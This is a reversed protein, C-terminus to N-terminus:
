HRTLLARAADEGADADLSRIGARHCVDLAASVSAGVGRADLAALLDDATAEPLEALVDLARRIIEGAEGPIAEGSLKDARELAAQPARIVALALMAARLPLGGARPKHALNINGPSISHQTNSNSRLPKVSRMPLAKVRDRYEARYQERVKENPITDVARDLADALAARDDPVSLVKGTSEMRWLADVLREAGGIADAYAQAGRLRVVDDPDMGPPMSAFRMLRGPLLLPLAVDIAKRAARRGAADGDFAFIPCDSMRWLSQLHAPTLATGMTAVSAPFGARVSSITATYGEVVILPKENWAPDRARHANYLLRGKDFIPTENTNLYKAPAKGTLDRGGFGVVRGKADAIPFIVRNRFRDHQEGDERQVILGAEVALGLADTPLHRYLFRSDDPAFGIEFEAISDQGIGRGSLYERGGPRAVLAQAFIERAAENAEILTLKHAERRTSEADLSPVPLGADAALKAVADPFSLGEREMVFTFVDGNKGASHDFWAAKQDNVYFSPTKEANFPSLGKWERGAKKLRVYRGIVASAPLRSRIEDLFEPPFRM